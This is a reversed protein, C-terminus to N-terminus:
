RSASARFTRHDVFGGGFIASASGDKFCILVWPFESPNRELELRDGYLRCYGGSYKKEGIHPGFLAEVEKMSMGLNVKAGNFRELFKRHKRDIEELKSRQSALLPILIPMLPALNSKGRRNGEQFLAEVEEASLDPTAATREVREFPDFPLTTELWTRGDGMPETRYDYHPPKVVKVLRGNEFILYYKRWHEVFAYSLGEYLQGQRRLSFEFRQPPGLAAVVDAQSIGRSLRSLTSVKEAPLPEDAQQVAERENAAMVADAAGDTIQAHRRWSIIIIGGGLLVILPLIKRKIIM